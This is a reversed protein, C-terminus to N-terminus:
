KVYKNQVNKNCTVIKMVEYRFRPSCMTYLYFNVSHNLIELILLAGELLKLISEDTLVGFSHNVTAWKILCIPVVLVFFAITISLLTATIRSAEAKSNQKATVRNKRIQQQIIKAVTLANLAFILVLPIFAYMMGTIFAFRKEIAINGHISKGVVCKEDVISDTFFSWASGYVGILGYILGISVFVTKKTVKFPFWVAIFRELSILVVFWSSVIKNTKMLWSSISCTAYTVARIDYGVWHTFLEKHFPLIVLVINDSVALFSLIYSITLQNFSHKQMVIIGLLNGIFGFLLLFFVLCYFVGHYVIGTTEDAIVNSTTGEIRQIGISMSPLELGSTEIAIKNVGDKTTVYEIDDVKNTVYEVSNMEEFGTTTGRKAGSNVESSVSFRSNGNWHFIQGAVGHTQSTILFLSLARPLLYLM